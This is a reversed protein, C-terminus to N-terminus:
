FEDVFRSVFLLCMKPKDWQVCHMQLFVALNLVCVCIYIYIYYVSIYLIHIANIKCSETIEAEQSLCM